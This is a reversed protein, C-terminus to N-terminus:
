LLGPSKRHRGITIAQQNLPNALAIGLRPLMQDRAVLAPQQGEDFPAQAIPGGTFVDNLLSEDAKEVAQGIEVVLTFQLRVQERDGRVLQGIMQATLAPM